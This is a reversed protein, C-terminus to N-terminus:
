KSDNEFEARSISEGANGGYDSVYYTMTAQSYGRHDCVIEFCEEDKKYLTASMSKEAKTKTYFWGTNSFYATRTEKAPIYLTRYLGSGYKMIKVTLTYNSSNTVSLSAQEAKLICLPLLLLFGLLLLKNRMITLHRKYLIDALELLHFQSRM